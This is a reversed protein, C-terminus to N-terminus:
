IEATGGHVVGACPIAEDGEGERPAIQQQLNIV